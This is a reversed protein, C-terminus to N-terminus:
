QYKGFDCASAAYTYRQVGFDDVAMQPKCRAVWLRERQASEAKDQDTKTRARGSIRIPRGGNSLVCSGAGRGGFCNLMYTDAQAPAQSLALGLTAITLTARLYM